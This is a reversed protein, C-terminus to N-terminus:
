CIELLQQETDGTRGKRFDNLTTYSSNNNNGYKESQTIKLLFM